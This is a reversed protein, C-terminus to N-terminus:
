CRLATAITINSSKVLAALIMVDDLMFKRSLATKTLLRAAVALISTAMLFWSVISVVSAADFPADQGATSM